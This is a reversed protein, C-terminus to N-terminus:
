EQINGRLLHEKHSLLLLWIISPNGNVSYIARGLLKARLFHDQTRQIARVRPRYRNIVLRPYIELYLIQQNCDQTSVRIDRLVTNVKLMELLLQARHRQQTASLPFLRENGGPFMQIQSSVDMCELTPHRAISRCLESWNEDSFAHQGFVLDELGQNQSLSQVLYRMEGDSIPQIRYLKLIKLNGNGRLGNALAEIPLDCWLIQTPGLNHRLSEVLAATGSVNTTCNELFIEINTGAGAGLARVTEEDLTFDRLYLHTLSACQEILQSLAVGPFPCDPRTSGPLFNGEIEVMRAGSTTLLSYLIHCATSAQRKSAAWVEFRCHSGFVVDANVSLVLGFNIIGGVNSGGLRCVDLYASESIWVINHGLAERFLKWSCRGSMVLDRGSATLEVEGFDDGIYRNFIEDGYEIRDLLRTSPVFLLNEM